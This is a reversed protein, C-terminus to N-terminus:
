YWGGTIRSRWWAPAESIDAHRMLHLTSATCAVAFNHLNPHVHLALAAGCAPCRLKAFDEESCGAKLRRIIADIRGIREEDESTVEYKPPNMRQQCPM